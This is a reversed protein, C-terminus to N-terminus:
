CYINNTILYNDYIPYVIQFYVVVFTKSAENVMTTAVWIRTRNDTKFINLFVYIFINRSLQFWFLQWDSLTNKMKGSCSLSIFFKVPNWKFCRSTCNRILLAPLHLTLHSRNQKCINESAKTKGKGIFNFHNTITTFICLM